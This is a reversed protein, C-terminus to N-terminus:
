PAPAWALPAVLLGRNQEGIYGPWGASTIYYRDGDAVVEAAHARIDTVPMWPFVTRDPSRLVVTRVYDDNDNATRTTFLYYQGRYPVVTPSELNGWTFSPVPDTTVPVAPQSWMTSTDPDGGLLTTLLIQGDNRTADVGVSYLLWQPGDRLLFPDRGGPPRLSDMADSAVRTFTVLDTSVARRLGQQTAYIMVWRTPGVQVVHPAWLCCGENVRTDATLVDPQDTWPGMLSPATAHLLSHEDFPMGLGTNTIGYLHWTGDPGRVVTHDNLYRATVTGGVTVSPPTYVRTFEGAVFPVYDLAEGSDAADSPDPPADQVDSADTPVAQVDSPIDADGDWARFPCGPLVFVLAIAATVVRHRRQM